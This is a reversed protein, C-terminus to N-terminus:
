VPLRGAWCEWWVQGCEVAEEKHRCPAYTPARYVCNSCTNKLTSKVAAAKAATESKLKDSRVGAVCTEVDKTEQVGLPALSHKVVQQRTYTAMLPPLHHHVGVVLATGYCPICLM